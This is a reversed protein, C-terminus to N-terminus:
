PGLKDLITLILQDVQKFKDIRCYALSLILYKFKTFLDHINDFSKCDLTNLEVELIHGRM